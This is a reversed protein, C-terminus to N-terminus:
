DTRALVTICAVGDAMAPGQHLVRQATCWAQAREDRSASVACLQLLLFAFSLRNGMTWDRHGLGLGGNTLM